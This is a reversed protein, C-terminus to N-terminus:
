SGDGDDPPNLQNVNLGTIMDIASGDPLTMINTQTNLYAGNALQVLSAPDVYPAGTITDFQSGDPRTYINANTDITSGDDFYIVPDLTNTPVVNNQTAQLDKLAKDLADQQRAKTVADGQAIALQTANVTASTTASLLSNANASTSNLFAAISGPQNKAAASLSAILGGDTQNQIAVIAGALWNATNSSSIQFINTAPTITTM